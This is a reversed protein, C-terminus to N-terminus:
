PSPPRREPCGFRYSSPSSNARYNTPRRSSFTAAFWTRLLSIRHKFNRLCRDIALLTDSRPRGNTCM